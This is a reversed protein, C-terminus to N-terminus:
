LHSLACVMWHLIEMFFILDISSDIEVGENNCWTFWIDKFKSRRHELPDPLDFCRKFKLWFINNMVKRAIDPDGM